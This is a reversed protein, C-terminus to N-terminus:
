SPRSGSNYCSFTISLLCFQKLYMSSLRDNLFSLYKKWIMEVNEKLSSCRQQFFSCTGDSEFPVCPCNLASTSYTPISTLLPVTVRHALEWLWLCSGVGQVRASSIFVCVLSHKVFTNARGRLLLGHLWQRREGQIILFSLSLSKPLETPILLMPEM